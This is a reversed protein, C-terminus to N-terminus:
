SSIEELEKEKRNVIKMLVLILVAGLIFFLSFGIFTMSGVLEYITSGVFLFKNTIYFIFLTLGQFLGKYRIPSARYIAYFIIISIISEFLLLIMYLGIMLASNIKEGADDVNFAM